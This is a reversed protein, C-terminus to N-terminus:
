SFFSKITLKKAKPTVSSSTVPNVLRIHDLTTQKKPDSSEESSEKETLRRKLPRVSIPPTPAMCFTLPWFIANANKKFNVIAKGQGIYRKYLLDITCAVLTHCFQMSLSLDYLQVIGQDILWETNARFFSYNEHSVGLFIEGFRAFLCFTENNPTTLLAGLPSLVIQEHDEVTGIRIFKATFHVNRKLYTVESSFEECDGLSLSNLFVHMSEEFNETNQLMAKCKPFIERNILAASNLQWKGSYRVLADRKKEFDQIELFLLDKFGLRYDAPVFFYNNDNWLRVIDLHQPLIISGLNLSTILKYCYMSGYALASLNRQMLSNTEFALNVDQLIEPNLPTEPIIFDPINDPFDYDWTMDTEDFKWEDPDFDM